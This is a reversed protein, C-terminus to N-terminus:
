KHAEISKKFDFDNMKITAKLMANLQYGEQKKTLDALLAMGNYMDYFRGNYFLKVDHYMILNKMTYYAGARQFADVWVTSKKTEYPLKVRVRKLAVLSAYLSAYTYSNKCVDVLVEIPTIVKREVEDCFVHGIGSITVYPRGKCNCVVLGNIYKKVNSVYHDLVSDIVSFTFFNKRENFTARDKKELKSLVYVEQTMMDLTYMYSYHMNMARHWGDPHNLLRLYHAAVFRRHLKSNRVYGDEVIQNAIPDNEMSVEVNFKTGAPITENAVLTFYKTIDCGNNKLTEIRNNKNMM